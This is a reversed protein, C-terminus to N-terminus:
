FILENMIKIEIIIIKCQDLTQKGGALAGTPLKGSPTLGKLM